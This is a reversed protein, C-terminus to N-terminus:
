LIEANEEALEAAVKFIHAIAFLSVLFIILALDNPSFYYFGAMAHSPLTGTMNWVLLPRIAVDILVSGIGLSAIRRLLGAASATFIRGQLYSTFLKWATSCTAAVMLWTAFSLSFGVLRTAMDPLAAEVGALRAFRQALLDGNLWFSITLWLTWLAYAAALGRGLQCLWGIRKQLAIVKEPSPMEVRSAITQMKM